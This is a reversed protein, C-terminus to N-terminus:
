KKSPNYIYIYVCVCRIRIINIWCEIYIYIYWIIYIIELDNWIHGCTDGHLTRSVDSVSGLLGTKLADGFTKKVTISSPGPWMHDGTTENMKSGGFWLLFLISLSNQIQIRMDFTCTDDSFAGRVTQQSSKAQIHSPDQWALHLQSRKFFPCSSMPRDGHSELTYWSPPTAQYQDDNIWILPNGYDYPYGSDDDM